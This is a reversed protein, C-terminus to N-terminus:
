LDDNHVKSTATYIRESCVTIQVPDVMPTVESSELDKEMSDFPQEHVKTLM